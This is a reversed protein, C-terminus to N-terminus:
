GLYEFDWSSTVNKGKLFFLYIVGDLENSVKIQFKLLALKDKKNM